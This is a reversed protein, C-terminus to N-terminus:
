QLNYGLTVGIQFLGSQYGIGKVGSATWGASNGNNLLQIVGSGYAGTSFAAAGTTILSGNNQMVALPIVKNTAPQLGAPMGTLSFTTATSTFACYPLNINVTNGNISYACTLPANSGGTVTASFSGQTPIGLPSSILLWNGNYYMVAAVQGGVIQGANLAQGNANVIAAVGLGNVNLTSAGTNSNAAIFYIVIGNQYASFNATFNLVYANASGTDVGGFLTLLQSNFVQDTTRILNGAADSEVFKYGVNPLLYLNAEGRANLTIPNLNPTLATWDTWTQIPTVTGAAYSQLTGFANPFGNNTWSKFVLCPILSAATAM